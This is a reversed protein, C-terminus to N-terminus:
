RQTSPTKGEKERIGLSRKYPQEAEAHRCQIEYRAALGYRVEAVPRRLLVM